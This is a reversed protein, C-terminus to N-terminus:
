LHMKQDGKGGFSKDSDTKWRRRKRERERERGRIKVEFTKQIKEGRTVSQREM